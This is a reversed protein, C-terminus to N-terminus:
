AHGEASDRPSRLGLMVETVRRAADGDHNRNFRANFSALDEATRRTLAEVDRVQEIVAATDAVLPGPTTEEFPFLFGRAGHTYDALDPVLFVIPKGTLAFDFRLSSYDLVAVDAALILDNIEPHDTVDIVGPRDAGARHFRHGRMLLVHNPLARTFADLDVTDVTEAARFNSARDDRWTPAHLVATRDGIGLAARVEARRELAATGVLADNRPYGEHVIPGAWEYQERYHRDMAADPTVLLSWTASTHELQHRIRRPSFNKSEWLVKGMTKSPYGHFTQVLVQGDRPRYWRDPEVNTVVLHATSWAAYWEKSRVLVSEAGEPVAVSHDAVAWLIRLDPRRRSLERQIALPSDTM